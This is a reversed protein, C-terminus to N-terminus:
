KAAPPLLVVCCGSLRDHLFSREADFLAWVFGLGFCLLSLWALLYRLLARQTAPNRGSDREVIKLRWTQMALTQGHRQWYWVFYLGFVLLVNLWLVFGPLEIQATVGLILAPVLVALAWVGMLLLSEYVMCVLRRRVSAIEVVTRAPAAPPTM